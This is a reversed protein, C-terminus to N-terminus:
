RINSSSRSLRLVLLATATLLLGLILGIIATGVVYFGIYAALLLPPRASWVGATMALM